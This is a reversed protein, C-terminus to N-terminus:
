VGKSLKFRAKSKKAELIKIKTKTPKITHKIKDKYRM